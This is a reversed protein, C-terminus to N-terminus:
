FYQRRPHSVIFLPLYAGVNRLFRSSGDALYLLLRFFSAVFYQHRDVLSSPMVAWFVM